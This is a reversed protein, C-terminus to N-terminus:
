YSLEADAELKAPIVVLDRSAREDEGVTLRAAYAAFRKREDPNRVGDVSGPRVEWAYLTYAGPAVGALMYRGDGATITAMANATGGGRQEDPILTVFVRSGPQGKDDRALGSVQAAHPSLTIALEGAPVGASLDIRGNEVAEGALRITKVFCGRRMEMVGLWYVGPRVKRLAPREGMEAKVETLSPFSEAPQLVPIVSRGMSCNGGDEVTVSVPLDPAPGMDLLVGDVDGDSLNVKTRGVMPAVDSPNSMVAITYAGPPVRDFAFSGDKPSCRTVGANAWGSAGDSSFIELAPPQTMPACGRARGTVRYARAKQLVMDVHSIAAGAAVDVMAARSAETVGPYYTAVYSERPSLSVVPVPWNRGAPGVAMVVYRGPSIGYARYQGLDNTMANAVPRLTKSGNEYSERLLEVAVRELPEGDGDTVTGAIAGPPQLKFEIGAASGGAAVEIPSGALRAGLKNYEQRSYGNRTASLFYAGPDLGEFRFVGDAGTVAEYAKRNAGSSQLLLEVKSLPAGTVSNKVVGAISGPGSPAVAQAAAMGGAALVAILMGKM